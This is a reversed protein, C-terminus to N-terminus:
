EVYLFEASNLLAHCFDVFAAAFAHSTGKPLGDPLHAPEGKSAILAAQRVLFREAVAIEEAEPARGYVGLYAQRVLDRTRDGHNTLLRGAAHRAQALTFEGNLMALAQPATTTIARTPCSNDRDPQDFVAFLPFQFNRKALIYISRRDRDEAKEDVYWTYRSDGAPMPLEPRASIGHMRTQLRGSFQLAADRIAEADRRKIRAHWLLKGDPDVKGARKAMPNQDGRSTQRYTASTVIARHLQKLKWDHAVLDAALFDLLEGHSPKEGMTGFDNPTSVIGQGFYHQWLRNVIVRSTLPHDPRTLWRALASRRGTSDNDGPPPQILPAGRDLCEPFGPQVEERPKLFNGNALRYTPPSVPGVDTASMAMPLAAPKEAEFALLKKQLEDYRSRQAADLRRHMRAYKRTIQKSALVVLQHQLPTRKEAAVKLAMQTEDDFAGVAESFVQEGVPRLLQEMENRVAQTKQRWAAMEKEYRQRVALPALPQDDHQMLPAFFAQLRYYDRQPIPDFKHNHCRACGMTLGLFTASFVDTVDDLIEQRIQTYNSGNTEEPHLRFYGTAILADLSDPELEDGAVQQRVFRDYPMDDNFARIVYDRYRYAEPRLRDLKFGETESYRVVDLWHQAWREGFRPSALLRDVVKDYANPGNDALFAEIEAPTPSLGTLDFTVRRLLTTKEAEASPVLGSQELRALVFADVSNRVWAKHEVKPVVPRVVPKFPWVTNQFEGAHATSAGALLLGLLTCAIIL